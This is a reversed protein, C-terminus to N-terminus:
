REREGAQQDTAARHLTLVGSLPFLDGPHPLASTKRSLCKIPHLFLRLDFRAEGDYSTKAFLLNAPKLFIVFCFLGCFPLASLRVLLFGNLVQVGVYLRQFSNTFLPSSVMFCRRRETGM